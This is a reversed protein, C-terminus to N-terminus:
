RGQRIQALAEANSTKCDMGLLKSPNGGSYMHWIKVEGSFM